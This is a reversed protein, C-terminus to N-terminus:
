KNCNEVSVRWTLPFSLVTVSVRNRVSIWARSLSTRLWSKIALSCFDSEVNCSIFVFVEKFSWSNGTSRLSPLCYRLTLWALGLGWMGRINRLCTNRCRCPNDCGLLCAVTLGVASRKTQIRANTFPDRRVQLTLLTFDVLVGLRRNTGEIIRNCPKWVYVDVQDSWHWHTM